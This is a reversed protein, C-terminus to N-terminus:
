AQQFLLDLPILSQSVVLGSKCYSILFEGDLQHYLEDLDRDSGIKQVIFSDDYIETIAAGYKQLSPWLTSRMCSGALKFFAIKNLKIENAPYATVKHVEIINAIKHNINYAEHPLLDVEITILVIPQIDTRSVNLDYIMVNRRNLVMLIQGLLGKKDDAYIAIVLNENTTPANQKM